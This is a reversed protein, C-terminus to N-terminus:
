DLLLGMTVGGIGDELIAFGLHEYFGIANANHKDVGMHIGRVGRERLEAFLRELLSRGLGSGRTRELLDIHFHAPYTAVVDASMSDPEHILRVIRGAPTDDDTRPYRERLPPWWRDEAWAAFVVTDDASLLYGAIGQEDVVVLQTGRGQAVYPGAYVHGLLDPDPYLATADSGADGALLCVRYIGAMDAPGAREVRFM